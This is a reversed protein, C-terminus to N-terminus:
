APEPYAVGFRRKYYARTGWLLAVVILLYIPYWYGAIVTLLLLPTKPAIRVVAESRAILAIVTLVLAVAALAVLLLHNSNWATIGALILLAVAVALAGTRGLIVAVTAKGTAADGVRDPITTLAYVGGVAFFFYFPNDWGLLGANHLDMEPMVAAPVLFGHAYANAFLGGVPRDKLRLPPASYVIALLLFQAAIFLALWSRLPALIVPSTLVIACGVLLQRQTLFGRQLFGVKRNLRDSEFDYIQNLYAAGAFLLSMGFLVALDIWGFEEGSLAHHYHLSVLYVSWIPLHLLPRAAFFWDLWRM